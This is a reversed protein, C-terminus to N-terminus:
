QRADATHAAHTARLHVPQQRAGEKMAVGRMENGVHRGEDSCAESALAVPTHQGAEHGLTGCTAKDALAM